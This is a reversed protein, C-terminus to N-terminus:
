DKLINEQANKVFRPYLELLSESENKVFILSYIVHFKERKKCHKKRCSIEFSLINLFLSCKFDLSIDIKLLVEM